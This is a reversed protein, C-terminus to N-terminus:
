PDMRLCPHVGDRWTGYVSLSVFLLRLPVTSLPIPSFALRRLNVFLWFVGDILMNIREAYWYQSYGPYRHSSGYWRLVNRSSDYRQGAVSERSAHM